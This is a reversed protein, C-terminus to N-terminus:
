GLKNDLFCWRWSEGPEFSRMVPHKTAQFHKSAHRGPSSDCCGVHGCELCLRLHVWTHGEALCEECGDPTNPTTVVPASALHECARAQQQAPAQLDENRGGVDDEESRDLISEEIDLALQARQLVEGAVLGKDRVKLLHQREAQLMVMRLRRYQASPTETESDPRGLREWAAQTRAEARAKLRELVKPDDDDTIVTQLEKWAAKHAQQLVAAEQLADEAPDPRGRLDLRRVLWPLTTGQLLLSGGVVALAIFVLVERYRLDEPLVFVAALTVVGRMGAWGIVAPWTWPPNPDARKIAPILRPIYTAPFVWVPRIVVVAAFVGLAALMITRAPLSNDADGLAAIIWRAQLGILLFVTNELLFEVTRWNTRESIRSAASQLIPAKHGLLLGTVVVALVGSAHLEEAPVYAVWPAVLSLSTDLVPDTIHRRFKALVLAAVVGIVVGGGAARLFDLGVDWWHDLSGALAAIAMRLGVLATADNLLSEGELIAVIRRPMGVKRAIATAAVADTPAVIAGLAIAAAFPIPLLWYAVLGVGFMTFAVLGVSLLGIARRNRRFDVLSTRISTAYLLPPLFGVLVVESTLHVEPVFWLYSAIVGVVVLLLPASLGFRRAGASVLSVVVALAVVEIAIHM